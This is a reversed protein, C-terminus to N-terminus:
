RASRARSGPPSRLHEGLAVQDRDVAARDQVAPVAVRRDRDADTFDLRLQDPHGPRRPSSTPRCRRRRGRRPRPRPRSVSMESRSRSRSGARRGTRCRAVPVAAVADAGLHVLIRVHEVVAARALARLQHRAHSEGDLRHDRQARRAGDSSASPQVTTVRSPEIAACTSCVDAIKSSPTQTSWRPRRRGGFTEAVQEGGGGALRWGARRQGSGMMRAGPRRTRRQPDSPMRRLRTPTLPVTKPGRIHIPLEDGLPQANREVFTPQREVSYSSRSCCAYAARSRHHDSPSRSSRGVHRRRSLGDDGTTGAAAATSAVPRAAVPVPPAPHDRMQPLQSVMAGIM